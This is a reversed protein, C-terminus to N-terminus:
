SLFRTLQVPKMLGYPVLTRKQFEIRYFDDPDVLNGPDAYFPGFANRCSGYVTVCIRNEGRKLLSDVRLLDPRHLITNEDSENIRIGLAAGSWEPIELFVAEGSPEFCVHFCYTMNGSYYPFGQLCWDGPDLHRVAKKISNNQVTFDGLLYVAELGRMNGHYRTRMELLNTGVRLKKGDIEIKRIGSDRWKGADNQAIFMGNLSLEFNEPHEMALHLMSPIEDCEFPYRLRLSLTKKGDQIQRLKWPQIMGHSRPRLNLSRRVAADANLVYAKRYPASDISYEPEDLLFVNPEDPHIEWSGQSEVIETERIETRGIKGTNNMVPLEEESLIYFRSELPEFDTNFEIRDPESKQKEQPHLDGTELDVEYLNWASPAQWRVRVDQARLKRDKMVPATMQCSETPIMGTNCLFLRYQNKADIERHLLFPIEKGAHDSVSVTRIKEAEQELRRFDVAIFKRYIQKPRESRECDAYEPPAGLYFVSGGADAFKELLELTTTRVTRLEPLIVKGYVGKGLHITGDPSIRGLRALMSEDGYDFLLRNSLLCNRLRPLRAEEETREEETYNGVPRGFWASELPHIVLLPDRLDGGALLAGLRAAYDQINKELKYWPSHDHFSPPYDRKAEGTLTYFALHLSFVTIGLAAQWDIMAKQSELSFDWGVGAFCECIAKRTDKQHAVSATQIMTDFNMWRESLIDAGPLDMHEIFRMASGCREIQSLVSDEGFVHGTFILNHRACWEAVPRAFADVLLETRLNIIQWRIKSLERGETEFFLEPLHDLLDIGYRSQFKEEMRDTWNSYNPEDTFIGPITKGFEASCEDAYREHTIRLFKRIAGANMMDSYCGGNNWENPSDFEVYFRLFSEEERLADGPTLRRVGSLATGIRKGAFFALDGPRYDPLDLLDYKLERRRFEKQEAVLGGASGSAYRDEDYLWAQLGNKKAEDICADICRFWEPSLYDTDLGSRSHMFFGGYGMEKFVRIQRRLEEEVLKGNWSWFPLGRFEELPLSLLKEIKVSNM